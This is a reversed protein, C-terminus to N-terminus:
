LFSFSFGGGTNDSAGKDETLKARQLISSKHESNRERHSDQPLDVWAACGWGNKAENEANELLAVWRGILKPTDGDCDKKEEPDNQQRPQAETLARRFETGLEDPQIAEGRDRCGSIQNKRTDLFRLVDPLNSASVYNRTLAVSM